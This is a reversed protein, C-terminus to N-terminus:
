FPEDSPQTASPVFGRVLAGIYVLLEEFAQGSAGKAVMTGTLAVAVIVCQKFMLPGHGHRMSWILAGVGILGVLFFAQGLTLFLLFRDLGRSCEVEIGRCKESTRPQSVTLFMVLRRLPNIRLTGEYGTAKTIDNAIEISLHVITRLCLSPIYTWFLFRWAWAVSIDLWGIRAVRRVDHSVGKVISKLFLRSRLYTGFLFRAIGEIAKGVVIVTALGIVWAVVKDEGTSSQLSTWLHVDSFLLPTIACFVIGAALWRFGESLDRRDLLEAM